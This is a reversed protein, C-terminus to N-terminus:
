KITTTAVVRKVITKGGESSYEVKVPQNRIAEYTVTNGLSDVFVTSPTYTYTVPSAATESKLIITSASPDVQTVTGTFTMTGPSTTVVTEAQASAAITGLAITLSLITAKMM